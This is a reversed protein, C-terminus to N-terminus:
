SVFPLLKMMLHIVLKECYLKLKESFFNRIFECGEINSLVVHYEMM